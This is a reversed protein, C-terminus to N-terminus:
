CIFPSIKNAAAIKRHLKEENQLRLIVSAEDSTYGSASVLGFLLSIM